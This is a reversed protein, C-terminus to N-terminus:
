TEKGELSTFPPRLAHVRELGDQTLVCFSSSTLCQLTHGVCSRMWHLVASEFSCNAIFSNAFGQLEYGDLMTSIALQQEQIAKSREKCSCACKMGGQCYLPSMLDATFSRVLIIVPQFYEGKMARLNEKPQVEDNCATQWIKYMTLGYMCAFWRNSAVRAVLHTGKCTCSKQPFM